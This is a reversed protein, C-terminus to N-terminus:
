TTMFKGIMEEQSVMVFQLLRASINVMPKGWVVCSSQPSTPVGGVDVLACIFVLQLDGIFLISSCLLCHVQLTYEAWCNDCKIWCTYILGSKSHNLKIFLSYLLLRFSFRFPPNKETREMSQNTNKTCYELSFLMKTTCVGSLFVQLCLSQPVWLVFRTTQNLKVGLTTVM